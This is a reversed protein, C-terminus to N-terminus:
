CHVHLIFVWWLVLNQLTRIGKGRQIRCSTLSFTNPVEWPNLEGDQDVEHEPFNLSFISLLAAVVIMLEWSCGQGKSYGQDINDWLGIGHSAQWSQKVCLPTPVQCPLCLCYKIGAELGEQDSSQTMPSSLLWLCLIFAVPWPKSGPHFIIHFHVQSGEPSCCIIKGTGQKELLPHCAVTTFISM